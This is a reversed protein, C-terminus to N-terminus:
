YEDAGNEDEYTPRLDMSVGTSIVFSLTTTARFFLQPQAEGM